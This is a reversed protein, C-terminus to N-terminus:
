VVSVPLTLCVKEEERGQWTKASSSKSISDSIRIHTEEKDLLVPVGESRRGVRVSQVDRDHGEVRGLGVPEDPSTLDVAVLWGRWLTPSDSMVRSIVTLTM